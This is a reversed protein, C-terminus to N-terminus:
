RKSSKKPNKGKIKYGGIARRKRKTRIKSGKKRSIGRSM